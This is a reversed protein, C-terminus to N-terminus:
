AGKADQIARWVREPTLPLQLDTVGLPRLADLAANLISPLAGVTGSEGVGKVGLPNSRAPQPRLTSNFRPLDEARPLTYDMMSGAILQGTERDYHGNEM